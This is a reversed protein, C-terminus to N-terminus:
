GCCIHTKSRQQSETPEACCEMHEKQPVQGNATDKDMAKFKLDMARKNHELSHKRQGKGNVKRDKTSREYRTAIRM